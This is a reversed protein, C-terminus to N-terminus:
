NTKIQSRKWIGNKPCFLWLQNYIYTYILEETEDSICKSEYSDENHYNKGIYDEKIDDSYNDDENYDDENYDDENYDDENYDDENYDDIDGESNESNTEYSTKLNYIGYKRKETSKHHGCFDLGKQKSVKCQGNKTNAICRNEQSPINQERKKRIKKYEIKTLFNKNKLKSNVKKYIQKIYKEEVKWNKIDLIDIIIKHVIKHYPESIEM